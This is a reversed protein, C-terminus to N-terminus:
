PGPMHVGDVGGPGGGGLLEPNQDSEHSPDLCGYMFYIGCTTLVIGLISVM